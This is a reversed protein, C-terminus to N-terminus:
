CRSTRSLRRLCQRRCRAKCPISAKATGSPSSTPRVTSSLFITGLGGDLTAGAGGDLTTAAMATLTDDGLLGAPKNAANNGTIANAGGNGSGNIAAIGALTLNELNAGL